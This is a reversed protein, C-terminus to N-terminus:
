MNTSRNHGPRSEWLIPVNQVSLVFNYSTGKALEFHSHFLVSLSQCFRCPNYAETGKEVAVALCEKDTIQMLNYCTISSTISWSCSFTAVSWWSQSLSVIWEGVSTTHLYTSKIMMWGIMTCILMLLVMSKSMEWKFWCGSVARSLLFGPGRTAPLPISNYKSAINSVYLSRGLTYTYKYIDTGASSAVAASTMTMTPQQPLLLLMWGHQSVAWPWPWPWTSESIQALKRRISTSLYGSFFNLVTGIVFVLPHFM